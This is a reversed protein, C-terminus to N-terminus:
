KFVTMLEGVIGLMELKGVPGGNANEGIQQLKEMTKPHFIKKYIDPSDQILGTLFKITKFTHNVGVVECSAQAFQGLAEIIEEETRVPELTTAGKSM